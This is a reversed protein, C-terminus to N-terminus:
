SGRALLYRPTISAHVTAQHALQETTTGSTPDDPVVSSLKMLLDVAGAPLELVEGGLGADPFANAPPSSVQGSLDVRVTKSTQATTAVFKPFTADNAKASPSAARRRPLVLWLYDVGLVGSSGVSWSAAVKVNWTVPARPTSLLPLTGLRVPRRVAGSSPLTLLKGAQGWDSSFREAGFATGAGPSASLTFRPSVVTSAVKVVAWVEVDVEGFTFDDGPVLAPDIAFLAAATGAGATTVQLGSGGRNSADATVAWGSLSGGTEAEIVGFPAPALGTGPRPTWGVMAWIPADAGGSPTVTLDCLCPLDGPIAGNLAIQKPLTQDRYTYPEIKLDDYRWATGGPKTWMGVDGVASAGFDAIDVGTLTHTLSQQPAGMPSPAATWFEVTLVNGEARFIVWYSAFAVGPSLTVAALQTNVGARRKFIVLRDTVGNYEFGGFLFNNDDIWRLMPEVYPLTYGSPLTFKVTVQVDGYSYGRATHRVRKDTTDSPVLQGGSVSLTGPNNDLTYDAISDVAFDDSIDFPLGQAYPAVDFAIDVALSRAGAFQAWRYNPDWMGSGRLEFLVSRGAGDPQWQLYRGATVTELQALLVQLNSLALDATAGTVLWTAKVQANETTEGVVRGGGWRRQLSAVQRSKAGPTVKFTDRVKSYTGGTEIDLLTVPRGGASLEVIRLLDM